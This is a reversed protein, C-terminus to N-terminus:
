FFTRIKHLPQPRCKDIGAALTIGQQRIANARAAVAAGFLLNLAVCVCERQEPAELFSGRTWQNFAGIAPGCWIQYDMQRSPEGSNAWQSSKGLYARFVLAL